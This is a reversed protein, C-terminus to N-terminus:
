SKRIQWREEISRKELKFDRKMQLSYLGLNLYRISDILNAASDKSFINLLNASSASWVKLEKKNSEHTNLLSDKSFEVGKVVEVGLKELKAEIKESLGSFLGEVPQFYYPQILKKRVNQQFISGEDNAAFDFESPYFWPYFLHWAINLENSHRQYCKDILKGLTYTSLNKKALSETNISLENANQGNNLFLSGLGPIFDPCM